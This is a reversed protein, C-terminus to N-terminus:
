LEDIRRVRMIDLWTCVTIAAHVPKDFICFVLLM